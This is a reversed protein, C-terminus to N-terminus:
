VGVQFSLLLRVEHEDLGSIVDIVKDSSEEKFPTRVSKFRKRIQGFCRHLLFCTNMQTTYVAM